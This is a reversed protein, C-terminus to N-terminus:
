TPRRSRPRTTRVTIRPCVMKAWPLNKGGWPCNTRGLRVYIKVGRGGRNLISRCIGSKGQIRLCTEFRAVGRADTGLQAFRVFAEHLTIGTFRIPTLSHVRNIAAPMQEFGIGRLLEARDGKTREFFIRGFGPRERPRYSAGAVIPERFRKVISDDFFQSTLRDFIKPEIEFITIPISGVRFFVSM